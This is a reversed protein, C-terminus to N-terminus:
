AFKPIECILPSTVGHGFRGIRLPLLQVASEAFVLNGLLRYLPETLM